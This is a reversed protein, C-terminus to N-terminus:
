EDWPDREASQMVPAMPIDCRPPMGLDKKRNFFVFYPQLSSFLINLVLLLVSLSPNVSTYLDFLAMYYIVMDAVIVATVVLLGGLIMLAVSIQAALVGERWGFLVLLGAVLTITLVLMVVRMIPLIVRKSRIQGKTVYRYQDSISGLIWLDALPIWALWPNQICRRKAITQLGISHFVYGILGVGMAILTFLTSLTGGLPSANFYFESQFNM